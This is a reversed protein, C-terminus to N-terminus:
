QGIVICCKQANEVELYRRGNSFPRVTTAGLVSKELELLNSFNELLTEGCAFFKGRCALVAVVDDLLIWEHAMSRQVSFKSKMELVIDLGEAPM